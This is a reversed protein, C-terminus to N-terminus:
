RLFIDTNIYYENWPNGDMDFLQDAKVIDNPQAGTVDALDKLMFSAPVPIETQQRAVEDSVMDLAYVYVRTYNPSAVVADRIATLLADFSPYPRSLSDIAELVCKQREIM